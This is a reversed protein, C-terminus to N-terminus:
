SLRPGFGLCHVFFSRIIFWDNKDFFLEPPRDRVLSHAMSRNEDECIKWSLFFCARVCLTDLWKCM